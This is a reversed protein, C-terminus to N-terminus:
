VKGICIGGRFILPSNPQSYLYQLVVSCYYDKEILTVNLGTQGATFLVAGRFLPRDEHIAIKHERSPAM